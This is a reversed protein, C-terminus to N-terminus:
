ELMDPDYSSINKLLPLLEQPYGLEMYAIADSISNLLITATVIITKVTNILRVALNAGTRRNKVVHGEDAVVIYCRENFMSSVKERSSQEDLKLIAAENEDYEDQSSLAEETVVEAEAENSPSRHSRDGPKKHRFPRGLFRPM